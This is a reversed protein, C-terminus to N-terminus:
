EKYHELYAKFLFSLPRLNEKVVLLSILQLCKNKYEQTKTKLVWPKQSQPRFLFPMVYCSVVLQSYSQNWPICCGRRVETSALYVRTSSVSM